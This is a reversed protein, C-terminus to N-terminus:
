ITIDIISIESTECFKPKIIVTHTSVDGTELDLYIPEGTSPDIVVQEETIDTTLVDVIFNHGFVLIDSSDTERNYPISYRQFTLDQIPLTYIGNTSYYSEKSIFSESSVRVSDGKIPSDVEVRIYVEPIDFGGYVTIAKNILIAM